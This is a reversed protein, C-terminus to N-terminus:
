SSNRRVKIYGHSVQLAWNKSPNVSLRGSWSDFRAKDFNYRDENPERGALRLDKSNLSVSVFGLTAVGFTIHTADVWHHSIPANPNDLSSPRHMFTVPGLAPEGPYGIYAFVDMNKSIAYSYSISLESFLDHPHQRDILPNGKHTEGTQFLLPYGSGGAILADLSFMGSFHFLGNKGIRRQGMLM